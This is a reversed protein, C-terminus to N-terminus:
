PINFIFDFSLIQKTDPDKARVVGYCKLIHFAIAEVQQLKVALNRVHKAFTSADERSSCDASDLIFTGSNATEVVQSTSHRIKTRTASKLKSESLFVSTKQQPEAMLSDRVHRAVSLTQTGPREALEAGISQNAVRLVLYWTPDFEKQWTQLDHIADELSEKM